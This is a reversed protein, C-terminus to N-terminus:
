SHEQPTHTAPLHFPALEAPTPPLFPVPGTLQGLGWGAVVAIVLAAAFLALRTAVEM